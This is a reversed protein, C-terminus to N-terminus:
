LGGYVQHNYCAVTENVCGSVNAPTVPSGSSRLFWLTGTADFRMRESMIPGNHNVYFEMRGFMNSPASIGNIGDMRVEVGAVSQFGAGGTCAYYWTGGITDSSQVIVLSSGVTGRTKSFVLGTTANTNGYSLFNQGWSTLANAAVTFQSPSTDVLVDTDTNVLIRGTNDIRMREVSTTTGSPTTEFTWRGPMSGAGPAGDVWGQIRGANQYTTGDSGAAEMLFMRDGNQVIVQSSAVTGRTKAYVFGGVGATNGTTIVGLQWPNADTIVELRVDTAQIQINSSLGGITVNGASDIRAREVRGAVSSPATLFAMMGGMIGASPAADCHGEIAAATVFQTGDCGEFWIEGILDNANLAVMSSVTTGRSHGLVWRSGTFSNSFRAAFGQSGNADTGLIQMVPVTAPTADVSQATVANGVLVRGLNDVRMREVPTVSGTPTTEIQIRGPMSVSSPAADVVSRIAAADQFLTFGDSGEFLILGLDDSSQVIAYNSSTTGRSHGFHIKGSGAGASFRAIGVGTNFTTDVAQISGTTGGGDFGSIMPIGGMNPAAIIGHIETRFREAGNISATLPSVNASNLQFAAASSVTISFTNSTSAPTISLASTADTWVTGSMGTITNSSNAYITQLPTFPGLAAPVTSGGTTPVVRFRSARSGPTLFM